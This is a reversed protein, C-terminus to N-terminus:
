LIEVKFSKGERPLGSFIVMFSIAEHAEVVMDKPRKPQLIEEGTFFRPSLKELEERTFVNGAFIEKEKIRNGAKDLIIVRLKVSRRARRSKNNVDGKIIYVRHQGIEDEKGELGTLELSGKRFGVVDDWLDSIKGVATKFTPGIEIPLSVSAGQNQWWLYAAAGLTLLLILLLITRFSSRRGTPKKELGKEKVLDEFRKDKLADLSAEQSQGTPEQEMEERFYDEVSLQPEGMESTIEESPVKEVESSELTEALQSDATELGVEELPPQEPLAFEEPISGEAPPEPEQMEDLPEGKAMFEEFSIGGGPEEPIKAIQEPPAGDTEEGAAHETEIHDRHFNEFDKFESLFDDPVEPTVM